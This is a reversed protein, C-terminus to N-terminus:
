ILYFHAHPGDSWTEVTHGIGGIILESTKAKEFGNSRSGTMTM